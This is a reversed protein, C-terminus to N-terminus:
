QGFKVRAGITFRRDNQFWANPVFVRKGEPSSSDTIQQELVTKTNLINSAQLQVELCDNAFRQIEVPRLPVGLHECIEEALEPHASGSFVAIERSAQTIM